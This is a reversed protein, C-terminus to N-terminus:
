QCPLTPEAPTRSRPLPVPHTTQFGSIDWERGRESGTGVRDRRAEHEGIAASGPPHLVRRPGPDNTLRRYSGLELAPLRLNVTKLAPAKTV